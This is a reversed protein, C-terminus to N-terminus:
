PILIAISALLPGLSPTIFYYDALITCIGLYRNLAINALMAKILQVSIPIAWITAM